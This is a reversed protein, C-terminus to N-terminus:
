LPKPDVQSGSHNKLSLIFCKKITVKLIIKLLINESFKMPIGWTTWFIYVKKQLM